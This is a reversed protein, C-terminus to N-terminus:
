NMIEYLNASRPLNVEIEVEKVFRIFERVKVPDEGKRAFIDYELVTRGASKPVLRM